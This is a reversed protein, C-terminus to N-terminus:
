SAGHQSGPACVDYPLPDGVAVIVPLPAWLGFSKGPSVGSAKLALIEQDHSLRGLGLLIALLFAMPVTLELFTPLILSLLKAVQVLPVGRTVVLDILKLIRVILLIFIFALLGVFFPPLIEAIIYRWLTKRKM